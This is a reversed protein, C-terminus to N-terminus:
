KPKWADITAVFRNDWYKEKPWPKDVEGSAISMEFFKAMGEDSALRGDEHWGAVLQDYAREAHKEDLGAKAVLAKVARPKDAKTMQVAKIFARLVAKLTEPNNDIFKQMAYFSQLPFDPMFDSQSAVLNYGRDQAILNHPLSFIGVDLQGTEMAALREPSGGGQILKADKQPDLGAHALAFRTLADTSSGFRTIGFRKGRADAMTKISPMAYWYFPMQTFGGFFVKVNEGANIAALVSTPAALGIQVSEAVVARTLDSGGRFALIKANLGEAKFLGAEEAVYIPLFSADNVGLGITINPTEIKGQAPAPTGTLAVLVAAVVPLATRLLTRRGLM